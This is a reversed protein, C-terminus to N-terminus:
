SARYRARSSCNAPVGGAALLSCAACAAACSIASRLGSPLARVCACACLLYTPTCHMAINRRRRSHINLARALANATAHAGRLARALSRRGREVGRRALRINMSKNSFIRQWWVGISGASIRAFLSAIISCCCLYHASALRVRSFPSPPFHLRSRACARLATRCQAIDRRLLLAARLTVRLAPKRQNNISASAAGGHWVNWDGM